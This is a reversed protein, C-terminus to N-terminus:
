FCLLLLKEWPIWFSLTLRSNKNKTHIQSIVYNPHDMALEIVFHVEPAFQGVIGVRVAPIIDQYLVLNQSWVVLIGERRAEM